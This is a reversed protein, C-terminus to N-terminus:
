RAGHTTFVAVYNDTDVTIEKAPQGAPIEGPKVPHPLQAPQAPETAPATKEGESKVTAPAPSITPPPGYYYNIFQQYAVLVLVSLAIGILARKDM